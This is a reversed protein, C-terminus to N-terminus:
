KVRVQGARNMTVIRTDPGAQLTLTLPGSAVGNPFITISGVSGTLASLPYESTSDLRRETFVTDPSTGRHVRVIRSHTQVTVRVPARQRAAVTQAMQLDGAVVAAARKVRSQTLSRSVNPSVVALMISGIVLVALLEMITFGPRIRM